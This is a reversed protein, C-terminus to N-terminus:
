GSKAVIGLSRRIIRTLEGMEKNTLNSSATVKVQLQTIIARDQAKLRTDAEMVDFLGTTATNMSALIVDDYAAPM